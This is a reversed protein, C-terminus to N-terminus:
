LGVECLAVVTRVKSSFLDFQKRSMCVVTQSVFDLVQVNIKNLVAVAYIEDFAISIDSWVVARVWVGSCGSYRVYLPGGFDYCAYKSRVVDSNCM